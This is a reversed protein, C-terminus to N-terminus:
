SSLLRIEIPPGLLRVWTYFTGFTYVNYITFIMFLNQAPSPREVNFIVLTLVVLNQEARSFHEPELGCPKDM